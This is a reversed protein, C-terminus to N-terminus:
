DDDEGRLETEGTQEDLHLRRIAWTLGELALLALATLTVALIYYGSGALIGVGAAMWITAATTVGIVSGRQRVIAGAGIFGIGTLIGQAMRAPDGLIQGNPTQLLSAVAMLAATSVTVLVHTRLGAPKRQRQREVGLAVGLVFAVLLRPLLRIEDM